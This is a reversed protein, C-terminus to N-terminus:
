AIFMRLCVLIRVQFPRAGSGDRPTSTDIGMGVAQVGNAGTIGTMTGHASVNSVLLALLAILFTSSSFLM